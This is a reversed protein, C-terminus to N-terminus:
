GKPWPRQKFMVGPANGRELLAKGCTLLARESENFAKADDLRNEAITIL